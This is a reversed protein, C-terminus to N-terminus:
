EGGVHCDGWTTDSPFVGSILAYLRSDFVKLEERINVQNNIGDPPDAEANTNFWDQVGEAWYEQFSEARYTKDLLGSELATRYASELKGQFSDDAKFVGGEAISHAFEHVCVSEDPYRDPLTCLLNEEGCSAVIGGLGRARANVADIESQPRDKFGYEPVDATGENRGIVVFRVKEKVLEARVDPRRALMTDVLRCALTLARSDVQSSALVPLGHADAHKRYFDDLMYTTRVEAPVAGVEDCVDVVRNHESRLERASSCTTLLPVLLCTVCAGLRTVRVSDIGGRCKRGM